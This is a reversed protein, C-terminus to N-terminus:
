LVEHALGVLTRMQGHCMRGQCPGMTITTYRKLLETSSFGETVANRVDQVSVDECICVYGDDGCRRAKLGLEPLEAGEGGAARAGVERAHAVSEAVPAPALLDGAAHVPMATGQRLLNEQPTFSGSLCLLDCEIKETGGTYRVSVAKVRQKGHVQIIEGVIPRVGAPLEPWASGMSAANTLTATLPNNAQGSAAVTLPPRSFVALPEKAVTAPPFPLFSIVDSCV